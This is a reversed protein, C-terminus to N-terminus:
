SYLKKIIAAFCETHNMDTDNQVYFGNYITYGQTEFIVYEQKKEDWEKTSKNPTIEESVAIGFGGGFHCIPEVMAMPWEGFNSQIGETIEPLVSGNLIESANYM